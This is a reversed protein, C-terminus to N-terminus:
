LAEVLARAASSPLTNGEAVSNELAQARERLGADELITESLVTQIENWFWRRSQETRLRSLRGDSALASHISCM